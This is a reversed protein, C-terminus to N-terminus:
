EAEILSSGLLGSPKFYLVLLLVVLGIASKYGAQIFGGALTEVIGLVVGGVVAGIPKGWGGLVAAVFGLIALSSGTTTTIPVIPSVVAGAIAGIVASIVFALCIMSGTKIGAYGAALPETATATMAKGVRTRGTIYFLGAVLVLAVGITWLDQTGIAVGGAKVTAASSFTPGFIPYASWLNTGVAQILFSVGITAMVLIIISAHRRRLPGIVALYILAGVIGVAIVTVLMALGYPWHWVTWMQYSMMGGLMVFEGQAFNVV